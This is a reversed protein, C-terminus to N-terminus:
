PFFRYVERRHLCRVFEIEDGSVFVGIRYEHIRIRYYGRSGSIKKIQAIEALSSAEEASYIHEKVKQLIDKDKVKKLDRHFSARFTVKM